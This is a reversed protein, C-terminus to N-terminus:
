PSVTIESTLLNLQIDPDVPLNRIHKAFQALMLGAFINACYITTKATCAGAYAEGASFLTAPYHDRSATDCATLVRLVEASMRGDCFVSSRDKVAEWILRRVDIKDVCCFVVNGIEMRRANTLKGISNEYAERHQESTRKGLSAGYGKMRVERPLEMLGKSINSKHDETIEYMKKAASIKARREASMPGNKRGKNGAANTNGMLAASRKKRTEETHTVGLCSGAVPAINYEPDLTDMAMQEFPVCMEPDCHLLVRFEFAGKGYKDWANQLYGNEHTGGLLRSKHVAWRRKLNASSGVYRTGNKTNTITYIGSNM